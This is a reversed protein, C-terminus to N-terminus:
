RLESERTSEEQKAVAMDIEEVASIQEASASGPSSDTMSRRRVAATRKEQPHTKMREMSMATGRYFLPM